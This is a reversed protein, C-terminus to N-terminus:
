STPEDSRSLNPPSSATTASSATCTHLSDTAPGARTSSSSAVALGDWCRHRRCARPVAASSSRTGSSQHTTNQRTRTTRCSCLGGLTHKFPLSDELIPLCSPLLPDIAPPNFCTPKLNRAYRCLLPQVSSSSASRASIDGLVRERRSDPLLCALRSN